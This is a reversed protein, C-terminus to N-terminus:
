SESSIRGTPRCPGESGCVLWELDVHKNDSVASKLPKNGEDANIPSFEAHFVAM